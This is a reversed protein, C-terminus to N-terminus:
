IFSFICTKRLNPLRLILRSVCQLKWSFHKTVFCDCSLRSLRQIFNFFNWNKGLFCKALLTLLSIGALCYRSKRVSFHSKKIEMLCMEHSARLRSSRAFCCRFWNKFFFVFICKSCFSFTPFYLIMKLFMYFVWFDKQTQDALVHTYVNCKFMYLWVFSIIM